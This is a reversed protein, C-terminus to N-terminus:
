WEELVFIVDDLYVEYFEEVYVVNGGNLYFFELWVKMVGEYM